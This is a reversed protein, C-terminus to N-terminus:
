ATTPQTRAAAAPLQAEGGRLHFSLHVAMAQEVVLVVLIILYFWPMESMDTKREKEVPPNDPGHLTVSGTLAARDTASRELSERGTRKLDSEADTDVNFVVARTEPKVRAGPEVARPYLHFVYTGPRTAENFKFASVEKTSSADPQQEGLDRLGQRSALELEALQEAEAITIPEPPREQFFRRIRPEYRVTELNMALSSGVLHGSEDGVSTLYKQLAQMLVVFTPAGPGGPWDNWAEAEPGGGGPAMGIATLVAVVRGKGFRNGVALPDGFQVRERLQDVRRRLDRQDTQAWFEVLNPRDPKDKEGPDRLLRDFDVALQFLHDYKGGLGDRITKYYDELRRRYVKNKDDQALKNMDDILSQAEAKYTDLSQRNPLTILEAQDQTKNWRGKAVGFYKEITLYPFFKNIQHEKDEKYLEVFMPHQEDRIFISPQQSIARMIKEGSDMREETPQAQLPAPFLGKGDAYLLRNYEGPQVKPGMFFAVGGGDRVYKELNKIGKEGLDKANVNLIFICPFQEITPKSLEDIPRPVVQYGKAASFLSQLFYTGGPRKQGNLGDGDIVLIPVQKKVEVVAYRINDAQLGVDEPEINATIERFAQQEHAALNFGIQFTQSTPGPPVSIMTLSGEPRDIGDVKITVRVNKKESSSYNNVTVTFQLPIDVPAVRSEPRLETVALNDHNQLVQRTEGRTPNGVDVMKVQVNLNTLVDIARALKDGEPGTWDRERFDSVFYLIKKPEPDKALIEAAKQLGILPSVHLATAKVDKDDLYKNLEAIRDDNLRGEIDVNGHECETLRVLRFSQAARTQAQRKAIDKIMLKAVDMSTVEIGQNRWHDDMSLTDDLVVLHSAPKDTDVFAGVYRAVLLGALLVLFCRLALLILQEIILRRRNRKQSKLLFEMAAWRIRRFRMRNILHIIIPASIAGIGAWFFIPNLFLSGM